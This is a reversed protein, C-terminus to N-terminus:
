RVQLGLTILAPFFFTQSNNLNNTVAIFSVLLHMNQQIESGIYTERNSKSYREVGSYENLTKKLDLDRVFLLFPSFTVKWLTEAVICVLLQGDM